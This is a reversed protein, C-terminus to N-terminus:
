GCDPQRLQVFERNFGAIPGARVCLRQIRCDIRLHDSLNIRLRGPYELASARVEGAHGTCSLRYRNGTTSGSRGRNPASTDQAPATFDFRVGVRLLWGATISFGETGAWGHWAGYRRTCGTLANRGLGGAYGLHHASASARRGSPAGGNWGDVIAVHHYVDGGPRKPDAIRLLRPLRERYWSHDRGVARHFIARAWLACPM